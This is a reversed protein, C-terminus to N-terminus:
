GLDLIYTVSYSRALYMLQKSNVDKTINMVKLPKEYIDLQILDGIIFNLEETTKISHSATVKMFGQVPHNIGFNRPKINEYKFEKSSNKRILKADGFENNSRDNLGLIM